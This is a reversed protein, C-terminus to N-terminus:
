VRVAVRRRGRPLNFPRGRKREGPRDVNYGIIPVMLPSYFRFFGPCTWFLPPYQKMLTAGTIQTTSGTVWALQLRYTGNINATGPRPRYCTVVGRVGYCCQGFILPSVEMPDALVFVPRGETDSNWTAIPAATSSGLPPPYKTPSNNEGLTSLVGWNDNILVGMFKKLQKFWDSGGQLTADCVLGDPVGSYFRIAHGGGELFLTVQVASYPNDPPQIGTANTNTGGIGINQYNTLGPISGSWPNVAINISSRPSTFSSVRVYTLQPVSCLGANCPNPGNALMQARANILAKARNLTQAPPVAVPPTGAAGSLMDWYTESWGSSGDQFFMTLKNGPPVAPM